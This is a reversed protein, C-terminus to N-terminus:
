QCGLDCALTAGGPDPGCDLPGPAAPPPQGLFQYGLNTVADTIDVVGNNDTDGAELCEPTGSGLFLFGLLKVVDTIEVIGNSDVDGRRFTKGGASEPLVTITAEASGTNDSPQGDNVTLRYLYTGAATFDIATSSGGPSKIADGAPGSVKLWGYTLGQAGGDGDDSGRGDLTAQAKGAALTVQGSAPTVAIRATPKHNTGPSCATATPPHVGKKYAVSDIEIIGDNGVDALGIALYNGVAAGFDLTEAALKLGTGTTFGFPSARGNTYVTVDFTGDGEPDEVTVWISRFTSIAAPTYLFPGGSAADASFLLQDGSNLAFSCAASPGAAPLANGRNVFYFGVDGLAGGSLPEGDGTPQANMFAPPKPDVRWRAAFTVGTRLLNRDSVQADLGLFIAKNSPDTFPDPYATALSTGAPRTPDGPDLIRLVQVDEGCPGSGPVAVVEVGGPAAGDPPQGVEGPASGDWFDHDVSRIWKGDLNGPQGTAPNYLNMPTAPHAEFDISYDWGGAPPDYSATEAVPLTFNCSSDCPVQRGPPAVPHLTYTYILGPEPSLEEDVYETATGPLASTLEVMQGQLTRQVTFTAWEKVLNAFALRVRSSGGQNTLGCAVTPCLSINPGCFMSATHGASDTLKVQFDTDFEPMESEVDPDFYEEEGNILTAMLEGERSVEAKVTDPINKWTVHAQTKGDVLAFTCAVTGLGRSQVTSTCTLPACRSGGQVAVLSYVADFTGPEADSATVATGVLPSGAIPTGDRDIEIEDYEPRNNMWTLTVKQNAFGCALGAPCTVSLDNAILSPIFSLDSSTLAINRIEFALVNRGATLDKISPTIDIREMPNGGAGKSAEHPATAVQDLAFEQGATGVNRRAVEVGNLYAVFGDDYDIELILSTVKAPDAVNFSKRAFVAVYSNMMDTLVTADDNDGYGIGTPGQLWASDNFDPKRWETLPDSPATKGPFYKWTDGVAILVEGRVLGPGCWVMALVFLLFVVIKSQRPAAVRSM